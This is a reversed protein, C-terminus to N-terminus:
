QAAGTQAYHTAFACEKLILIVEDIVSDEWEGRRKEVNAIADDVVQKIKAEPTGKRREEAFGAHASSAVSRGGGSGVNTSEIAVADASKGM